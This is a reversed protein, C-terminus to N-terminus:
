KMTQNMMIELRRKALRGGPNSPHYWWENFARTKTLRALRYWKAKKLLRFIFLCISREHGCVYYKDFTNTGDESWFRVRGHFKGEKWNSEEFLTGNYHWIQCLGSRLDNVYPTISSPKTPYLYWYTEQNVRVGNEWYLERWIEGNFLYFTKKGHLKGDKWYSIEKVHQTGPYYTVKEENLDSGCRRSKNSLILIAGFILFPVIM